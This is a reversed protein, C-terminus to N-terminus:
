SCLVPQHQQKPFPFVEGPNDLESIHGVQMQRARTNAFYGDATLRWSGGCWELRTVGKERMLALLPEISLKSLLNKYVKNLRLIGRKRLEDEGFYMLFARVDQETRTNARTQEVAAYVSEVGAFFGQRWCDCNEPGHQCYHGQTAM